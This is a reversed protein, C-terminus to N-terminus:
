WHSNCRRDHNDGQRYWDVDARERGGIDQDIEVAERSSCIQACTFDDGILESPLADNGVLFIPMSYMFLKFEVKLRVTQPPSPVWTRSLKKTPGLSPICLPSRRSPNAPRLTFSFITLAVNSETLLEVSLLKLKLM